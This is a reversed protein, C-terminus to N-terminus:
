IPDKCWIWGETTAVADCPSGPEPCLGAIADVGNLTCVLADLDDARDVVQEAPVASSYRMAARGIAEQVATYLARRRDRAAPPRYGRTLIRESAFWGAPYSEMLPVTNEPEQLTARRVVPAVVRGDRQRLRARIDDILDLTALATRAIRDAGVDLPTKGLRRRIDHDTCRRFLEDAGRGVPEGARHEVLAPGMAAPWGIPTDVCLIAPVDTLWDVVTTVLTSRDRPAELRELRLTWSVEEDGGGPTVSVLALACNRPDVAADWGVIRLAGSGM